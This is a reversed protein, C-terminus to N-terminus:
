VCVFTSLVPLVWLGVETVVLMFVCRTENAKLGVLGAVFCVGVVCISKVMSLYSSQIHWTVWMFQLM